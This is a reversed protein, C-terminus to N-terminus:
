DFINDSKEVQFPSSVQNVAMHKAMKDFVGHPNTNEEITQSEEPVTPPTPNSNETNSLSVAKQSSKDYVKEGQIIAQLDAMFDDESFAQSATEEVPPLIEAEVKHIDTDFSPAKTEQKDDNFDLAQAQHENESSKWNEEHWDFAQANSEDEDEDHWAFSEVEFAETEGKVDPASSFRYSMAIPVYSEEQNDYKLEIPENSDIAMGSVEEGITIPQNDDSSIAEVKSHPHRKKGSKSSKPCIKKELDFLSNNIKPM